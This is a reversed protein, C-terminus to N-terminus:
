ATVASFATSTVVGLTTDVYRIRVLGPAGDNSQQTANGNVKVSGAGNAIDFNYEGVVQVEAWDSVDNWDSSLTGVVDATRCDVTYAYGPELSFNAAKLGGWTLGGSGTAGTDGPKGTQQVTVTTLSGTGVKKKITGNLALATVENTVQLIVSRTGDGVVVYGDPRYPRNEDLTVVVSDGENATSVNISCTGTTVMAKGLDRLGAVFMAVFRSYVTSNVTVDALYGYGGDATFDSAQFLVGDLTVQDSM